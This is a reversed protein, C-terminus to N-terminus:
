VVARMGRQSIVNLLKLAAGNPYKNGSEWHKVTSPSVNLVHAFVPQSIKARLRIKKIETPSLEKIPSLCMADFEHMTTIDVLGADYLSKVSKHVTKLISKKM